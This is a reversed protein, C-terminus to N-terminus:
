YVQERCLELAYEYVDPKFIKGNICNIKTLHPSCLIGMILFPLLMTKYVMLSAETTLYISSNSIAYAKHATTKILNEIHKSCTLTSDLTVGLYKYNSVIDILKNKLTIHCGRDRKLRHKTGIKM